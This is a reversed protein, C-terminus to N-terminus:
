TTEPDQSFSVDTRDDVVEFGAIADLSIYINDNGDDKFKIFKPQSTVHSRTLLDAYMHIAKGDRLLIKVLKDEANRM